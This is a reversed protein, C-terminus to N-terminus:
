KLLTMKRILDEGGTSLRYLYIGASAPKGALQGNWAVSYSAPTLNESVLTELLRGRIDLIQLEVYASQSIDFSLRTAPNFPNPYNAHLQVREPLNLEERTAVLTPLAGTRHLNGRHTPWYNAESGSGNLDLVALYDDTGIVVEVDGDADFDGISPSGQVKNTTETPFGPLSSGDLDFGYVFFDNSGIFIEAEGDGDVDAMAPSSYLVGGTLIPWGALDAGTHDLAYIIRDLSGFVIELDGDGDMDCVAPDSQVNSLTSYTWLESGSADYAHLNNDDSGFIIELSGDASGDINAILPASKVRDTVVIPFGDAETGDLNLVHVQDGWTAVVIHVSGDGTVDGVAVAETIHDELLIPFGGFPTGDHHVVAVDNNYCAVIIELDGDNDLDYLTAPAFIYRTSTYIIESTGDHHIVYLNYDKSGIVIELDGDNDIHGVAPTAEIKNGTLCPFGALATGDQQIVHVLSDEAGFIIEKSGDGDLDVIANGGKIVGSAVPFNLQWISAEVQFDVVTTYTNQTEANATIELSFPFQGSPAEAAISFQYRDLVNVGINGNFIDGYSATSDTITVYESNSRLVATVGSADVWGPENFLNV